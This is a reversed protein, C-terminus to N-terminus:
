SKDKDPDPDPDPDTDTDTVDPDALIWDVAAAAHLATTDFVPLPSCTAGILGITRM